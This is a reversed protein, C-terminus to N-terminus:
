AKTSNLKQQILQSFEEIDYPKSLITDDEHIMSQTQATDKDYGTTFIAKIDPRIKRMETIAEAGGLKPMVIDTIVLHIAHQHNKFTEIAELGDTAQLVHYDLSELLETSMELIDENDDVLLITEHNGSIFGQEVADSNSTNSQNQLLPFYIDFTSGEGERSAVEIHGHHREVAGFVMALGLGTGKGVEKTTFFPEFLHEIASPSIGAGNDSVSLHAYKQPKFYVHNQMKTADADFVDLHITIVPQSCGALADRANNVLNLLVQHIQTTDGLIQIDRSTTNCVMDINEPISTRLLTFTEKILAQIYVPKMHVTDKRSFTLLQKILGTAHGSLDEIRDLKQLAKHNEKMHEKALYLNGTIGALINNFDHAIGGVLTGIAEMKQAQHFKQELEKKETVDHMDAIFFLAEGDDDLIPSVTRETELISGDKCRISIEGSWFQGQRCQEYFKIYFDESHKSSRLISTFQGIIEQATYGTLKEFSPNVYEIRAEVDTIMIGDNAYKFASHLKELLSEQHEREMVIGALRSAEELDALEHANPLAPHDYYMGFAGLVKGQADKIPESWCSRMGHPLAIDKLKEWKPDTTIDEVLVRIGTYTSTGCSGVSPGNELGHVADCYDKPLSPAGGHMLKNGELELMSCRLGPHRSEYLLAIADYIKTASTGKAIMKLIESRKCVFSESQKLTNERALSQIRMSINQFHTQYTDSAAKMLFLLFVLCLLAFSVTTENMELFLHIILPSMSLTLFIFVPARLASLTTVSGAAMGALVVITAAQHELSHTPFLFIGASGWAFGAAISIVVYSKEWFPIAQATPQARQFSFYYLVRLAVVIGMASLWLIIHTTPIVDWQIYALLSATFVSAFVATLSPKYLLYVQEKRIELAEKQTINSPSM